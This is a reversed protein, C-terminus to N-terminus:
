EESEPPDMNKIIIHGSEPSPMFAAVAISDPSALDCLSRGAEYASEIAQEIELACGLTYEADGDARLSFHQGPALLLARTAAAAIRAERDSGEM